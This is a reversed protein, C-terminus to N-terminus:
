LMWSLTYTIFTTSPLATEGDDLHFRLVVAFLIYHNATELLSIHNYGFPRPNHLFSRFYNFTLLYYNITKM